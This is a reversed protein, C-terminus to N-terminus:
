SLKSKVKAVDARTGMVAWDDGTAAAFSQGFAENAAKSMAVYADRQDADKFTVITLGHCDIRQARAPENAELKSTVKAGPCGVKQALDAATMPTSHSCSALLVGAAIMPVLRKM